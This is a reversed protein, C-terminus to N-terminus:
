ELKATKQVWRLQKIEEEAWLAAETDAFIAFIASGSGCLGWALAGARDAVGFAEMYGALQEGTFIQLFDNPLLGVKTKSRLAALVEDIEANCEATTFVKLQRESRFLDLKEYAAKTDSAWRPFVLVVSYCPIEVLPKIVDGIGGCLALEYGSSLFSVDAGLKAIEADSLCCCFTERLWLIMAAANGSGAGIGSGAPYEKKLTIRLPRSVLNKERALRLVKTVINIGPIVIGPTEVIDNINEEIQPYITLEEAATKKWFISLIEHFNELNKHLVRLTLNLKIPCRINEAM